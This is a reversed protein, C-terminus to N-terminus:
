CLVYACVSFDNYSAFEGFEVFFDEAAGYGFRFIVEGFFVGFAFKDDNYGSFIEV